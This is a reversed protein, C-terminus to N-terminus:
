AQVMITHIFYIKSMFAILHHKEQCLRNQLLKQHKDTFQVLTIEYRTLIYYAIESNKL